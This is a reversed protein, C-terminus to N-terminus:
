LTEEFCEIRTTSNQDMEFAVCVRKSLLSNRKKQYFKTKGIVIDSNVNFHTYQQNTELLKDKRIETNFGIQIVQFSGM